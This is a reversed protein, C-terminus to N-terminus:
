FLNNIILIVVTIRPLARFGAGSVSGDTTDGV